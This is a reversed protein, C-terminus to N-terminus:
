DLHTDRFLWEPYSFCWSNNPPSPESIDGDCFLYTFPFCMPEELLLVLREIKKAEIRDSSICSPLTFPTITLYYNLFLTCQEREKELQIVRELYKITVFYDALILQPAEYLKAAAFLKRDAETSVWSPFAEEVACPTSLVADDESFRRNCHKCFM